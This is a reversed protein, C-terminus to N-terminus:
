RENVLIEIGVTGHHESAIEMNVTGLEHATQTHSVSGDICNLTILETGIKLTVETDPSNKPLNIEVEYSDGVSVQDPANVSIPGYVIWESNTFFARGQNLWVEESGEANYEDPLDIVTGKTPRGDENVAFFYKKM